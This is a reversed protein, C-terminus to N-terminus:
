SCCSSASESPTSIKPEPLIPMLAADLIMLAALMGLAHLFAGPWWIRREPRRRLVTLRLIRRRPGVRPEVAFAPIMGMVSFAAIVIWDTM